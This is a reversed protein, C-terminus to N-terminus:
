TFIAGSTASLWGLQIRVITEFKIVGYIRRARFASNSFTQFKACFYRSVAGQVIQRKRHTWFKLLRARNKHLIQRFVRHSLRRARILLQKHTKEWSNSFIVRLTASFRVPQIPVRCRLLRCRASSSNSHAKPYNVHLIGFFRLAALFVCWM